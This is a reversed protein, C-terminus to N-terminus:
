NMWSCARLPRDLARVSDPGSADFVQLAPQLPTDPLWCIALRYGPVLDLLMYQAAPYDKATTLAIGACSRMPHRQGTLAFGRADLGFLLQEGRAKVASEKLTWLDYFRECQEAASREALAAVEEERFFRRALTMVDRTPVAEEVDVGVPIGATVACVLWEGSHSVNFDLALPADWLYPKGQEGVDFQWDEPAMDAYHSLVRRKFADSSAVRDRQSCWVHVDRVDLRSLGALTSLPLHESANFPRASSETM